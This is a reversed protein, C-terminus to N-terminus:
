ARLSSEVDAEAAARVAVLPLGALEGLRDSPFKELADLLAVRLQDIDKLGHTKGRLSAAFERLLPDAERALKDAFQGIQDLDEASFARNAVRDVWGDDIPAFEEPGFVLDGTYPEVSEPNFGAEDPQDPGAPPAYGVTLHPLYEAFDHSAGRDVLDNHRWALRQSSFRLVIAGQDGLKEVKRPGGAAITLDQGGEWEDAMEFWDVPQKSYLVTTHLEDAPLLGPIGQAKAWALVKRASAPSLKRSIYLPQRDQDAFQGRLKARAAALEVVNGGPQGPVGPQFGPPPAPPEAREYGEGYVEKISEDTRKIGIGALKVDRDALATLDEEDELNRYVTPPAVGPGFNWETLWKAITQNFSEHLMDSDSRVIEDRVDKMVDSQSGGLGQAESKSTGTQSLIIRLLADDMSAVFDGYTGQGTRGAELLEIEVNDPKAVAADRAVAAAAALTKDIVDQSSGQAFTGLATPMGFKELFVAWFKVVNRKFWVPWYCWHALGLGYPAFDHSAGTRYAWFKNPPVVEGQANEATKLRLEGANTFAFWARNPVLVDDLWIKGDPGIKYIAEGVAYGYWRGYLMRDCIRDWPLKGLQARLHDAAAAAAPSDDGPQVEWPRSIVAMRRQQFASACMDDDLLADYLKLNDLGGNETLIRDDNLALQSLWRPDISFGSPSRSYVMAVEAPAGPETPSASRVPDGGVPQAPPADDAANPGRFISIVRDLLGTAPQPMIVPPRSAM